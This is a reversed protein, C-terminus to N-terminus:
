QALHNALEVGKGQGITSVRCDEAFKLVLKCALKLTPAGAFNNGSRGNAYCILDGVKGDNVVALAVVGEDPAIDTKAVVILATRNADRVDGRHRDM